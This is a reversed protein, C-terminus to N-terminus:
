QGTYKSKFEELKDRATDYQKYCAQLEIKLGETRTALWVLFRSDDYYLRTGDVFQGSEGNSAPVSLGYKSGPRSERNRLSHLAADRESNARKIKADKEKLQTDLTAKLESQAKDSEKKLNEIRKNYIAAVETQTQVKAVSVANHVQVTHWSYALICAFILAALKVKWDLFFDLVAKM